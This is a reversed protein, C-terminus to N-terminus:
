RLGDVGKVEWAELGGMRSHVRGGCAMALAFVIEDSRPGDPLGIEIGDFHSRVYAANIHGLPIDLRAGVGGRKMCSPVIANSEGLLGRMAYGGPVHWLAAHELEGNEGVIAGKGYGDIDSKGGLAAILRESMETGLPKLDEMATQLDPEYQGAFPNSVCALIAGLRRPKDPRPGGDHRVEELVLQMKRVTFDPM